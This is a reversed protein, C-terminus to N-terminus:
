PADGKHGRAAATAFFCRELAAATLLFLGTQWAFVCLFGSLGCLFSSEWMAGYRRPNSGLLMLM